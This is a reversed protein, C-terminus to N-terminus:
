ISIIRVQRTLMVQRIFPIVEQGLFIISVLCTLIILIHGVVLNDFLPLSLWRGSDFIALNFRFNEEQREPYVSQYLPMAVAPFIIILMRFRLRFYPKHVQWIKLLAEVVVAVILAHFVGQILYKGVFSDWYMM